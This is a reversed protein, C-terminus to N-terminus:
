NFFNLFSHPTINTDVFGQSDPINEANDQTSRPEDSKINVTWFVLWTSGHSQQSQCMIPIFIFAFVFQINTCLLMM